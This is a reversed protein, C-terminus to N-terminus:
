EATTFGACEQNCASLTSKWDSYFELKLVWLNFVLKFTGPGETGTGGAYLRSKSTTNIKKKPEVEPVAAGGQKLSQCEQSRLGIPLQQKSSGAAKAWQLQGKKKCM